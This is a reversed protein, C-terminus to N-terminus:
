WARRITGRKLQRNAKLAGIVEFGRNKAARVVQQCMYWSDLLVTTTTRPLPSFAKIQEIAMEIKSRFSIGKAECECRQRYLLPEMPCRYGDVIYLGSVLSHSTVVKEETTSFHQGIGEMKVARKKVQTSDDIILFGTAVAKKPRGRRKPEPPVHYALKEEMERYAFALRIKNVQYVSWPAQRFFRAVNSQERQGIYAAALNTITYRKDCNVLAAVLRKFHAFQPKSFCPQFADLYNDLAPDLRVIPASM